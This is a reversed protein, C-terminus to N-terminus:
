KLDGAGGAKGGGGWLLRFILQQQHSLLAPAHQALECLVLCAALRVHAESTSQLRTFARGAEYEVVGTALSGGARVLRGLTRAAAHLEEHHVSGLAQSLMPAIQSVLAGAEDADAADVLEELSRLADLRNTLVHSTLLTRHRDLM